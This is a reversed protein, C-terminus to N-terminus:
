WPIDEHKKELDTMSFDEMGWNKALGPTASIAM